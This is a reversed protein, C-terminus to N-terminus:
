YVTGVVYTSTTNNYRAQKLNRAANRFLISNTWPGVELYSSVDDSLTENAQAAYVTTKTWTRSGGNTEELEIIQGATGSGARYVISDHTFEDGGPYISPSSAVTTDAVTLADTPTVTFWPDADDKIVHVGDAATYFINGQANGAWWLATPMTTGYGDGQARPKLPKANPLSRFWWQGGALRTECLSDGCKYIVSSSQGRAYAVPDGDAGQDPLQTVKSWASGDWLAEWIHSSAGGDTSGRFVIAESGDHRKYGFPSGMAMVGWGSTVNVRGHRSYEWVTGTNDTAAVTYENGDGTASKVWSTARWSTPVDGSVNLFSWGQYPGTYHDSGLNMEETGSFNRDAIVHDYLGSYAGTTASYTYLGVPSWSSSMAVQAGNNPPCTALMARVFPDTQLACNVNPRCMNGIPMGSTSGPMNSVKALIDCYDMLHGSEAYASLLPFRGGNGTVHCTTCGSTSTPYSAFQNALPQPNQISQAKVLPNMWNPASPMWISGLNLPHNPAEHAIFANEGAHCSPCSTATPTNSELDTGGQLFSPLLAIPTTPPTPSQNGEWFCAKGNAGQCILDFSGCSGSSTHANIVCIGAPATMKAYYIAGGDFDLYTDNYPGTSKWSGSTGDGLSKTGWPPPLPVLNNECETDYAATGTSIITQASRVTEVEPAAPDGPTVQPDCGAALTALAVAGLATAFGSASPRVDSYTVDRKM